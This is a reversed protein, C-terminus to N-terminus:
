PQRRQVLITDNNEICELEFYSSLEKLIEELQERRHVTNWREKLLASDGVLIRKNFYNGLEEFVIELPTDKYTLTGTRWFLFNESDTEESEFIQQETHYICRNGATVQVAQDEKGSPYVMVEGEIVAVEVNGSDYERINFSTGTVRVTMEDVYVFFPSKEAQKVDFFAEGALTVERTRRKLKEPYHLVAGEKLSIDTGDSLSIDAHGPGAHAQIIHQSPLHTTFYLTTTVVLLLLVAAASRILVRYKYSFPVVQVRQSKESLTQRFRNWNGDLDIKKLDELYSKEEELFKNLKIDPDHMAM